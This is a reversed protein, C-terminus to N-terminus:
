KRVFVANCQTKSILNYNYRRLLNLVSPTHIYEVCIKLPFLNSSVNHFFENLVEYEQGEIDIKMADIKKLKLEQIVRSLKQTRIKIVEGEMKPQPKNIIRAGGLNYNDPILFYVERNEDSLVLNFAKINFGNIEINEKLIRFVIPNGEISIIEAKPFIKGFYLSWFGKYAGIDVFTGDSPFNKQLLKIEKREYLHPAFYLNGDVCERPNLKMKFGLVDVTEEIDGFFKLFIPKLLRNHIGRIIPLNPEIRGLNKLIKKFVV